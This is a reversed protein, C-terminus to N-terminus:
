RSAYGGGAKLRVVVRRNLRRGADTANSAVPRTEGYAQQDILYEPHGLQILAQRVSNSRRSALERNYATHHNGDTHGELVLDQPQLDWFQGLFRDLKAWAAATVQDSDNAFYLTVPQIRRRQPQARIVNRTPDAHSFAPTPEPLSRQPSTCAASLLGLVAIAAPYPRLKM